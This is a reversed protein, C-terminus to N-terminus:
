GMPDIPVPGLMRTTGAAIGTLETCSRIASAFFFGPSSLAPEAPGPLQRPIALRMGPALEDLRKWGEITLFKHNATARISRGLKTTMAYVPKVGTCFSNTVMRPELKWTELNLALVNFGVTDVLEDMRRYIGEDPLYVRVNREGHFGPIRYPGLLYIIHTQASTQQEVTGTHLM